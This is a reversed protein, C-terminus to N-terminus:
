YQLYNTQILKYSYVVGYVLTKQFDYVIQKM